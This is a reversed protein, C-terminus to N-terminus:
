QCRAYQMTVPIKCITYRGIPMMLKMQMKLFKLHPIHICKSFKTQWCEDRSGGLATYGVSLERVFPDFDSSLFLLTGGIAVWYVMTTSDELENLIASCNIQICRNIKVWMKLYNRILLNDVKIELELMRMYISMFWDVRQKEAFLPSCLDMIKPTYCHRCSCCCCFNPLLHYEHWCMDGFEWEPEYNVGTHIMNTYESSNSRIVKLWNPWSNLLDPWFM